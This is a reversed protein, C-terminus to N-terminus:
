NFFYEIIHVFFRNVQITSRPLLSLLNGLRALARNPKTLTTKIDPYPIKFSIHHWTSDM